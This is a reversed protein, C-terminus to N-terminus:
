AATPLVEVVRGLQTYNSWRYEARYSILNDAGMFKQVKYGEERLEKALGAAYGNAAHKSGFEAPEIEPLCGPTNEVVIYKTKNVM